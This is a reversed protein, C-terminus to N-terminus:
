SNEQYTAMSGASHVHAATDTALSNRIPAHQHQYLLMVLGV